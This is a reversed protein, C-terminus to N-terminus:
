GAGGARLERKTPGGGACYRELLPVAGYDKQLDGGRIVEAVADLYGVVGSQDALVDLSQQHKMYVSQATWPKGEVRTYHEALAACFGDLAPLQIRAWARENAMIRFPLQPRSTDEPAEGLDPHLRNAVEAFSTPGGSSRGAETRKRWDGPASVQWPPTDPEPPLDPAPRVPPAKAPQYTAPDIPQHGSAVGAAEESAVILPAPAAETCPPEPPGVVDGAVGSSPVDPRGGSGSDPSRFSRAAPPQTNPTPSPADQGEGGRAGARATTDVRSPTEERQTSDSDSNYHPLGLPGGPPVVLPVWPAGQCAGLSIPTSGPDSPVPVDRRGRKERMRASVHSEYDSLYLYPKGCSHFLQVWGGALLEGGPSGQQTGGLPGGHTGGPTERVLGRRIWTRYSLPITGWPHTEHYLRYLLLLAADSLEHFGDADRLDAPMTTYKFGARGM